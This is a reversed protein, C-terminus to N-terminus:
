TSLHCCPSSKQELCRVPLQRQLVWLVRVTDARGGVRGSTPDVLHEVADVVKPLIATVGSCERRALSLCQSLIRACAADACPRDAVVPCGTTEIYRARDGQGCAAFRGCTAFMVLLVVSAADIAGVIADAYFCGPMVDRPAIWCSQGNRELAGCIEAAIGCRAVCLQHIITGPGDRLGAAVFRLRHHHASSGLGSAIRAPLKHRVSGRGTLAHDIQIGAPPLFTPWTPSGASLRHRLNSIADSLLAQFHPSFPSV